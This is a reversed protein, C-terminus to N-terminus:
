STDQRSARETRERKLIESLSRLVVEYQDTGIAVFEGYPSVDVSNVVGEINEWKQLEEGTVLDWVTVTGIGGAVMIARGVRLYEAPTFVPPACFSSSEFTIPMEDITDLEYDGNQNQLMERINEDNLIDSDEFPEVM